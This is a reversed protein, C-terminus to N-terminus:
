AGAANVMAKHTIPDALPLPMDLWRRSPSPTTARCRLRPCAFARCLARPLRGPHQLTGGAVAVPPRAPRRLDSEAVGPLVRRQFRGARPSDYYDSASFWVRQGDDVLRLEFVTGLLAPYSCRWACPTVWLPVPSCRTVSCATARCM